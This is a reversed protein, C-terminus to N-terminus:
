PAPKPAGKKPVREGLAIGFSFGHVTEPRNDSTVVPLKGFEDATFGNPYVRMNYEFNYRGFQFGIPRLKLAVNIFSDMDVGALFNYSVGLIGHYIALGGCEHSVVELMPDFTAMWTKGFEYDQGSANKGLSFYIGSELSLRLRRTDPPTGRAIPAGVLYCHELDLKGNLTYKCELGVGFMSPGSMEWIWEGIGGSGTRPTSLVLVAAVLITWVGRKLM